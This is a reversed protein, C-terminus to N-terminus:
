SMVIEASVVESEVFDLANGAKITKRQTHVVFAIKGSWLGKKGYVSPDIMSIDKLIYIEGDSFTLRVHEHPHADIIPKIKM